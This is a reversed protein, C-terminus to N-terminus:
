VLFGQADLPLHLYRVSASILFSARPVENSDTNESQRNASSSVTDATSGMVM